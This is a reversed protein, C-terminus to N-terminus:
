IRIKFTLQINTNDSFTFVVQSQSGKTYVAAVLAHIQMEQEHRTERACEGQRVSAIVPRVKAHKLSTKLAFYPSDICCFYM